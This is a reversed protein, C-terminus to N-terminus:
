RIYFFLFPSKKILGKQKKHGGQPKATFIRCSMVGNFRVPHRRNLLTILVGNFPNLEFFYIVTGSRRGTGGM